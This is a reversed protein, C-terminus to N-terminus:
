YIVIRKWVIKEALVASLKFYSETTWGGIHPSLLINQHAVLYAFEDPLNQEFFDEFSKTEYELVDLGVNINKTKLIELLDDENIISGRGVNILVSNNKLLHLNNKNLLNHFNSFTVPNKHIIYLNIKSDINELLSYISYFLQHNYNEDVAFVFNNM